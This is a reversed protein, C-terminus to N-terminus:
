FLHLVKQLAVRMQRIGTGSPYQNWWPMDTVKKEQINKRITQKPKVPQRAQILNVVAFGPIIKEHVVELDTKTNLKENLCNVVDKRISHYLHLSVSFGVPLSKRNEWLRVFLDRVIQHADKSNSLKRICYVYLPYCYRRHLEEFAETDDLLLRDVLTEDPTYNRSM